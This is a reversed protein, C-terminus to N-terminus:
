SYEAAPCPLSLLGLRQLFKTGDAGVGVVTFM